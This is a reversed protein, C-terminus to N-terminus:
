STIFVHNGDITVWHGDEPTFIQKKEREKKDKYKDFTRVLYKIIPLHKISNVYKYVTNNFYTTVISRLESCIERIEDNVNYLEATVNKVAYLKHHNDGSNLKDMFSVVSGKDYEELDLLCGMTDVGHYRFKADFKPMYIQGNHPIILTRGLQNNINAMFVWDRTDGINTINSFDKKDSVDEGVGYASFTVAKVGTESSVIAALTGGLSEGTLTINSYKTKVKNYLALADDAQPPRNDLGMNLDNRIDKLEKKETGSYSIVINGEDNIFVKGVFGNVKNIYTEGM